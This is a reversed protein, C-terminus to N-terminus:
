KTTEQIKKMQLEPLLPNTIAVGLDHTQNGPFAHFSLFTYKSLWTCRKPHIDSANICHLHQRTLQLELFFLFLYM